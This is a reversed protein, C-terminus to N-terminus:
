SFNICISKKLNHYPIHVFGIIKQKYSKQTNKSNTLLLIEM